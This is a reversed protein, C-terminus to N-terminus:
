LFGWRLAAIFIAVGAAIFISGMFNATGENVLEFGLEYVLIAMFIGFIGLWTM